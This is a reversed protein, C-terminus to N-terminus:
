GNIVSKMILSKQVTEHWESLPDSELTVGGGVYIVAASQQNEILEMCRLNVFLNSQSTEATSKDLLTNDDEHFNLEGLFGTYFSRDYGEEKIIFELVEKRPLGCVAATPHLKEILDKLNNEQPLYGKIDNCLHLLNGAKRTYTESVELDFGHLSKVIHETVIKQEKREKKGWSVDITDKYKQTGALSMTEFASGKTKLLTEPTAGAWLGIEPHYWVYVFALPYTSMLRKFIQIIDIHDLEVTESRSLVTKIFDGKEIRQIGKEVLELHKKRSNIVSNEHVNNKRVPVSIHENGKLDCRFKDINEESFLIAQKRGDFPAMIFGSAKFDNSYELRNDKQVIAHVVKAEPKRYVVFPLKSEKAKYINNLVEKFNM